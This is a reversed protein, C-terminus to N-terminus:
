DDYNSLINMNNISVKEDSCFPAGQLTHTSVNSHAIVCFLDMRTIKM